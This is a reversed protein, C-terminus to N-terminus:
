RKRSLAYGGGALALGGLLLPLTLNVLAGGTQPVTAPAAAEGVAMTAFPFAKGALAPLAQITALLNDDPM